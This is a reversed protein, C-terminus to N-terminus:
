GRRGLIYPGDDDANMMEATSGGIAPPQGRAGCVFPEGVGQGDDMAALTHAAYALTDCVDDHLDQKEDGTFRLVETEVDNLWPADDPLWIRGTSAMTIAPTARVLKDVGGPNLPRVAMPTRNAYQFVASNSAVSEIGVFSASHLKYAAEIKPLIDPIEWRGRVCDLWILEWWPTVAWTSIVTWDATTKASAAPDVTIFRWCEHWALYREGLKFGAGHREYRRRFWDAKFRSGERPVPRQQHQAAYGIPGMTKNVAENKQAPGFRAECMWEGETSRPDEWGISTRCKHEAEFQQPIRLEEFLGTKLVHAYLDEVHTRQGVIVRGSRGLDNVRNFFKHDHWYLVAARKVRSEVEAIDHADDILTIDGRHGIARAAVTLGIRWGTKDNKYFTKVNQDTTMRYRAGWRAQYWESDILDRCRGADRVVLSDSSAACLFRLWPFRIWAWAVFLVVTTLSKTSGPPTAIYLNQITKAPSSPTAPQPGETVHRLVAELHLCIADLQWSWVLPTAPDVVHWAQRIFGALSEEAARVEDPDPPSEADGAGVHEPRNSAIAQADVLEVAVDQPSAPGALM